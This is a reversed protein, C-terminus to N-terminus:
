WDVRKAPNGFVKTGAKVKRVVISGVSVVADDEVEVGLIVAHSGIYVRKGIKAQAVNAFGLATSYDGMVTGGGIMAGQISVFDGIQAGNNIIYSAIICGEGMQVYPKVNAYPAIITEFRCGRSKLLQSLKEKARPNSNGMAYVENGKSSWDKINGLIPAKVYDPLVVGPNDDIFGLVNYKPDKGEERAKQNILDVISYVELATAGACVIILDIM